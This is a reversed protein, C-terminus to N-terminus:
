KSLYDFLEDDNLHKEDQEESVEGPIEAMMMLLNGYSVGWM